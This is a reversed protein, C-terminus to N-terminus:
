LAFMAIDYGTREIIKQNPSKQKFILLCIVISFLACCEFNPLGFPMNILLLHGIQNTTPAYQFPQM